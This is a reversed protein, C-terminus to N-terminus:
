SFPSSRSPPVGCSLYASRLERPTTFALTSCFDACVPSSSSRRSRSRKLRLPPVSYITGLFLGFCYLKTILAGFNTAVIAAGGLATIACFAWAAFVSLEGSAVPLFPKNVKDIDVGYIQNIGVIYGNGMLLALLGLLARPVLHLSITEPNGM